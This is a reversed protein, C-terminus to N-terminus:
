EERRAGRSCFEDPRRILRLGKGRVECIGTLATYHECKECRIIELVPPLSNLEADVMNIADTWAENYTGYSERNGIQRYPHMASVRDLLDQMAQRSIANENIQSIARKGKAYGAWMVFKIQKEAKSLDEDKTNAFYEWPDGMYSYDIDRPEASPLGKLLKEMDEVTGCWWGDDDAQLHFADLADELYIITKNM